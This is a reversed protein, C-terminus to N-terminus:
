TKPGDVRACLPCKRGFSNRRCPRDCHECLWAGREEYKASFCLDCTPAKVEPTGDGM